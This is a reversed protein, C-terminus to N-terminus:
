INKNNQSGQVQQPVVHAFSLLLTRLPLSLQHLPLFNFLNRLHLQLEEGIDTVIQARRQCEDDRWQFMNDLFQCYLSILQRLSHWVVVQQGLELIDVLIGLLKQPLHTRQEVETAKVCTALCQVHLTAVYYVMQVAYKDGKTVIGFITIDM